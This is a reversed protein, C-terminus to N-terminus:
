KKMLLKERYIAKLDRQKDINDTISLIANAANLFFTQNINEFKDTPKHYDKHDEVGFYIFPIHVAAFAGQDSQDTWDDVKQKPNDHGFLIKLDPNTSTIYGRLEPHGFTGAAYLIGQDNHSIMDLNLNLVIKSLPVPPNAVFAKSGKWEQEGADFAVFVLTHNPKVKTYYDAIRLIGAIGSANDDAGNYIENNVIGLHDYHASIVIVEDTKGSIYGVVNKGTANKNNNDTFSFSQEYKELAPFPLLKIRKFRSEIYKRAKEAGATGTKRGEYSDSSLVEVDKLLQKGNQVNNNYSKVCRCGFLLALPLLFYIKM